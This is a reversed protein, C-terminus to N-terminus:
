KNLVTQKEVSAGTSNSAEEAGFQIMTYPTPFPSGNVWKLIHCPGGDNMKNWAIIALAARIPTKIVSSTQMSRFCRSRLLFVPSSPALGEGSFMSHWFEISAQEDWSRFAYHLVCAVSFPFLGTAAARYKNLESIATEIGRHRGLTDQLFTMASVSNSGIWFASETWGYKELRNLIRVCAALTRSDKHGTYALLNDFTRKSGTDIDADTQAGYVIMTPLSCKSESAALLRHYGDLVNGDSDLVISTGNLSWRGAALVAKFRNLNQQNIPRYNKRRNGKLIRDCEQWTLMKFEGRM